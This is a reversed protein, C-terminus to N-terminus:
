IQSLLDALKAANAGESKSPKKPESTAIPATPTSGGVVTPIATPKPPYPLHVLLADTACECCFPITKVALIRVEIPLRYQPPTSLPILNTIYKGTKFRPALNMQVYLDNSEHLTGCTACVQSHKMLVYKHPLIDGSSRGGDTPPSALHVPTASQNM